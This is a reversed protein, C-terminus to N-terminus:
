AAVGPLRPPAREARHLPAVWLRRVLIIAASMIPVAVFLGVFGLLRGVVVVGVVIVAPHLEVTRSMVVPVIVNGEIQQVVLFIGLVILAKQPSDALAFLVPPIGSAIAGVYPIPVLMAAFVAFVIAYDLGALTLGIYLLVATVAMDVIVGRLWGVWATRIEGVTERVDDQRDAPFLSLLGDYLPEPRAAVYYATMLVLILAGIAGAIGLGISAAPGLLRVPKDMYGQLFEQVKPGTQGQGGGIERLAGPVADVLEQLQDVFSPVVLAFMGAVVALLGILALLAGIPRPVRNREARTAFWDLPIAIVLTVVLLVFLTALERFALWCAVLAAALLVARVPPSWRKALAM